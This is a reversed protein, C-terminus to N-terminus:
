APAALLFADIITQEVRSSAPDTATAKLSVTKAGAPHVLLAGRDTFLM